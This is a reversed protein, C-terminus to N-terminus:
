QSKRKEEPSLYDCVCVRVVQRQKEKSSILFDSQQQGLFAWSTKVQTGALSRCALWVGYVLPYKWTSSLPNIPEKASLTIHCRM